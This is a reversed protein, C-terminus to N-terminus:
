RRGSRLRGRRSVNVCIPRYVGVVVRVGPRGSGLWRVNMRVTRHMAIVAVGGGRRASRGMNVGISRYMRIVGRFRFRGRLRAGLFRRRGSRAREDFRRQPAVRM